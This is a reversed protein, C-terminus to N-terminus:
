FTSEEVRVRSTNTSDEIDSEVIYVRQNLMRDETSEINLGNNEIQYYDSIDPVTPIQPATITGTSLSASSGGSLSVGTNVSLINKVAALGTAITTAFNAWKVFPNPQLPNALVQAAGAYTSVTASAVAAAKGAATEQGLLSAAASALGASANLVAQQNQFEAQRIKERKDTESKLNDTERKNQAISQNVREIALRNSTSTLEEQLAARQETSLTEISLQEILLNEYEELFLVNSAEMEIRKEELLMETEAIQALIDDTNGNEDRIKELSLYFESLQLELERTSNEILNLRETNAQETATNLESLYEKAKSIRVKQEDQQIATIQQQLRYELNFVQDSNEGYIQVLLARDKEYSDVADKRRKEFSDLFIDELDSSLKEAQRKQDEAEKEARQRNAEQNRIRIINAQNENEELEALRANLLATFFAFNQQEEATISNSASSYFNVLRQYYEIEENIQDKRKQLIDESSVGRAEDIRIEEELRARQETFLIENANNIQELRGPINDYDSLLKQLDDRLSNIRDKDDKSIKKQSEIRAIESNVLDINAQIQLQKLALIDEESAKQSTLINITNNTTENLTKLSINYKDVADKANSASETVDDSNKKFLSFIGVLAGITSILITISSIIVGVPNAKLAANFSQVSITAAGYAQRLNKLTRPFGGLGQLGQVLAITAQLRGFIKNLEESDSGILSLASQVVSFTSALQRTVAITNQVIKINDDGRNRVNVQAVELNDYAENLRRIAEAQEESGDAASIADAELARIEKRISQISTKNDELAKRNAEVAKSNENIGTRTDDFSKGAAKLESQVLDLVVRISEFSDIYQALDQISTKLAELKSINNFNELVKNVRNLSSTIKNLTGPIDKDLSANLAAISKSAADLTSLDVKPAVDAIKKLSNNLKNIGAAITTIDPNIKSLDLKEGAEKVLSLNKQLDSISSSLEEINKVASDTDASLVIKKEEM